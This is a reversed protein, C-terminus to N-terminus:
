KNIIIKKTIKQDNSSITLFYTGEPIDCVPIQLTYNGAPEHQKSLITQIKQGFLNVLEISFPMETELFYKINIFKDSSDPTVTYSFSLANKNKIHEIDDEEPM